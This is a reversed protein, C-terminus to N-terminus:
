YRVEVLYLGHPPLTKGALTRDGSEIISPLDDVKIKLADKVKQSVIKGDIIKAM